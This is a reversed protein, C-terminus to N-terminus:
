PRDITLEDSLKTAIKAKQQSFVITRHHGIITGPPSEHIPLRAV